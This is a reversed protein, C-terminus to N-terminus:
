NSSEAPRSEKKRALSKRPSMLSALTHVAEETRESVARGLVGQKAARSVGPSPTKPGANPPWLLPQPPSPQATPPTPHALGGADFFVAPHMSLFAEARLPTAPAVKLPTTGMLDSLPHSATAAEIGQLLTDLGSSQSESHQLPRPQYVAPPFRKAASYEDSYGEEARRPRKSRTPEAVKRAPIRPASAAVVVREDDGDDNDDDDQQPTHSARRRPIPEQGFRRRRHASNWRNKVANEPRGPLHSAVERWKQGYTSVLSVLKADEEETWPEKSVSPDLHNYWRERAQKGIRGVLRSAIESWKTIGAEVCAIVIADEEPTWAGKKLGPRLVKQWRHLAQVDTRGGGLYDEAIRRWNRSGHAEVGKRLAVDEAATWRGARPGAVNIIRGDEDVELSPDESEAM